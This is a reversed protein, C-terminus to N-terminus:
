ERLPFENILDSMFILIKDIIAERLHTPVDGVFDESGGILLQYEPISQWRVDKFEKESKLEKAFNNCCQFITNFDKRAQYIELIDRCICFAESTYDDFPIRTIESSHLGENM